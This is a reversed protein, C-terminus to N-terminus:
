VVVLNSNDYLGCLLTRPSQTFLIEKNKTMHYMLIELYKCKHYVISRTHARTSAQAHAHTHACCYEYVATMNSLFGAGARELALGLPDPYEGHLYVKLGPVM